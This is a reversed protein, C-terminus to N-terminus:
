KNMKITYAHMINHVNISYLNNVFYGNDLSNLAIIASIYTSVKTQLSSM